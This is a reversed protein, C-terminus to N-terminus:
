GRPDGGAKGGQGYHESDSGTSSFRLSIIHSLMAFIMKNERRIAVTLLEILHVPVRLVADFRRQHYTLRFDRAKDEGEASPLM